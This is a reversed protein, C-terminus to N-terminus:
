VRIIEGGIGVDIILCLSNPFIQLPSLIFASTSASAFAFVSLLILIYTKASKRFELVNFPSWIQIREKENIKGFGKNLSYVL